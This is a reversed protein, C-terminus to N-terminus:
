VHALAETKKNHSLLYESPVLSADLVISQTDATDVFRICGALVGREITELFYRLLQEDMKFVVGPSLPGSICEQLSVSKTEGPQRYMFDVLSLAFVRPSLGVPAQPTVHFQM